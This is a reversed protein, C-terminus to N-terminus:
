NGARAEAWIEGWCSELHVIELGAEALEQHFQEITYETKHDEDLRWEVGLERKYAVRWDREFSPVRILFRPASSAQQSAKLAKPRGELHELVNSMVVVDYPPNPSFKLGDGEFYRVREHAFRQRAAEINEPLIDIGDVRAGAHEAIDYAVAGVGTGFDLVRENPQLRNVFFRHYDTLKHKPHLGGSQAIAAQGHLQYLKSDLRMLQEANEYPSSGSSVRAELLQAVIEVLAPLGLFRSLLKIGVRIAREKFNM